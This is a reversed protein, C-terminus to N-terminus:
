LPQVFSEFRMYTQLQQNWYVRKEPKFFIKFSKFLLLGFEFGINPKRGGQLSKKKMQAGGV